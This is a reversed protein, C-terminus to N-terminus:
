GRMRWALALPKAAAVYIEIRRQQWDGLELAEAIFGWGGPEMERAKFWQQAERVPFGMNANCQISCGETAYLIAQVLCAKWMLQEPTLKRHLHRRLDTVIGDDVYGELVSYYDM